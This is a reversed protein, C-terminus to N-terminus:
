TKRPQGRRAVADITVAALLVVGTIIYQMDSTVSILTMGNAISQIVLVGLLAAWASGRGGFLSTGGIVASAIAYLLLAGGGSTQNASQARSAAMIGGWAAFTSCLVFCAMRVRAVPIGARRAAEINGGVAFVMRGFRTRRLVYDTVVILGVMIVLALPLGREQTLWLIAIFVLVAVGVVRVLLGQLSGTSLGARKRTRYSWFGTLAFYAVFLAGIGFAPLGKFYTFTINLIFQDRLNVVGTQGLVWLQVGQWGILGALTVVFSPIGIKAFWFGQLLGIFSGAAIGLLIAVPASLGYHVNLVAMIAACVASVVAVTLDIEGLLLVLVVGIAITGTAAMQNSLDVMNEPKFFIGKSAWGFIAWILILGVIVPLQGIDGQALRSRLAGIWGRDILRPDDAMTSSTM